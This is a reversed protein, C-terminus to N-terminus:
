GGSRECQVTDYVSVEGPICTCTCDGLVAPSSFGRCTSCLLDPCDALADEGPSCSWGDDPTCVEGPLPLGACALEGPDCTRRDFLPAECRWEDDECRPDQFWDDRCDRVCLFEEPVPASCGESVAGGVGGGGAAAGGGGAGGSGTGGTGAAGGGVAGSGGVASEHTKGGCGMLLLACLVISILM